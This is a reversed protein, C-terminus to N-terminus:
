APLVSGFPAGRTSWRGESIPIVGRTPQAEHSQGSETEHATRAGSKAAAHQQSVRKMVGAFTDRPRIEAIGIRFGVGRAHLYNQMQRDFIERNRGSLEARNYEPRPARPNELDFPIGASNMFFQARWNARAAAVEISEIEVESSGVILVCWEDGGIKFLLTAVGPIEAMEQALLQSAPGLIQSDVLDTNEGFYSNIGKLNKIDIGILAAFTNPKNGLWQAVQEVAESAMEKGDIMASNFRAKRVRLTSPHERRKILDQILEAAETSPDILNYRM